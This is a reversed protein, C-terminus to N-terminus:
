VKFHLKTSFDNQNQNYVRERGSSAQVNQFASSIERTMVKRTPGFCERITNEEVTGNRERELM